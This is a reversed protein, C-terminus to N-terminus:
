IRMMWKPHNYITVHPMIFFEVRCILKIIVLIYQILYKPLHPFLLYITLYIKKNLKPNTSNCMGNIIFHCFLFLPKCKFVKNNEYIYIYIYSEFQVFSQGIIM